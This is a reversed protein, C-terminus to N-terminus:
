VNFAHSALTALLWIADARRVQGRAPRQHGFAAIFDAKDVLACFQLPRAAPLSRLPHPASM